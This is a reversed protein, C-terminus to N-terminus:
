TTKGRGNCSSCTVTGDGGCNSCTVKGRGSCTPCTYIQESDQIVHKHTVDTLTSPAACLNLNWVPKDPVYHGAKGRYPNDFDAKWRREYQTDVKLTYMPRLSVHSIGIDDGLTTLPNNPIGDAYANVAQRIRSEMAKDLSVAYRPKLDEKTAM